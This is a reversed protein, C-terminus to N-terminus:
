VDKVMIVQYGDFVKKWGRKILFDIILKGKGGQPLQCDDIMVVSQDTLKSYAAEIEKLPTGACATIVLEEPQYELIGSYTRTNLKAYNNPNGYWSKSTGGEISLATKNNAARLIQAQFDQIAPSM